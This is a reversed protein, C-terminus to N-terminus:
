IHILSLHELLNLYSPSIDLAEAMATQSLGSSQRFRRLKHGVLIKEQMAVGCTQSNLLDLTFKYLTFTFYKSNEFKCKKGKCERRFAKALHTVNLHETHHVPNPLPSPPAACWIVDRPHTFAPRNEKAKGGPKKLLIAKRVSHGRRKM